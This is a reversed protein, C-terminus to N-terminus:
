LLEEFLEVVRVDFGVWVRIGSRFSGEARGVRRKSCM